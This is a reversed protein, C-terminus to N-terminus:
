VLEDPVDVKDGLRSAVYGKMVVIGGKQWGKNGKANQNGIPAGGKFRGKSHMDMMNERQTGLKLHKPNVCRPNDCMHMVVKSKDDSPHLYFYMARHARTGVGEVTICGYGLKNQKGTWNWCGTAPDIEYKRLRVALTSKSGSDQCAGCGTKHGRTLQKSTATLTAGCDCRCKWLARGEHSTGARSVAVLSGFREGGCKAVM